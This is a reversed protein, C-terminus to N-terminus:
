SCGKRNMAYRAIADRPKIEYIRERKGSGKQGIENVEFGIKEAFYDVTKGAKPFSKKNYNGFEGALELHYKKLVACAAQFDKSTIGGNENATSLPKLFAKFIKQRSVLSKTKNRTQFNAVDLTKLIATDAELLEFNELHSLDGDIFNEVDSITLADPSLGTMNVANFRIMSDTQQQTTNHIKKLAKYEADDVIPAAHIDAVTENRVATALGIIKVNTDAIKEFHRGEIEALLLFNNEFDDLDANLKAQIECQMLGLENLVINSIDAGIDGAFNKVKEIAGQKLTELDTVRNYNLQKGFAVYIDKACRNRALMQMSENTALVNSCMLYTFEFEPVVISVGSGLVSTYIIADYKQAEVNMDALFAAQKADGKNGGHILLLREEDIGKEILYRYTKKADKESTCGAMGRKGNELDELLQQKAGDLTALLYHNAIHPKTTTELLNFQLHPCHRQFFAVTFDNLDADALHISPAVSLIGILCELLPQRNDITPSSIVTELVQRAEDFFLPKGEIAIAFKQLSNICVAIKDAYRDGEQYHDLGLRNCADDILAVRHTLYACANMKAIRLAMLETKGAGKGRNDLWAAGDFNHYNMIQGNSLDDVDHRWIKSYDIPRYDKRLNERRKAVAKTILNKAAQKVDIGRKSTAEVVANVCADVNRQPALAAYAFALQMWLGGTKKTVTNIPAVEILSKLYNARKPQVILRKFNLTDNFDCKEDNNQPVYISEVSIKKAIQLATYIGTNGSAKGADNDAALRINTCGGQHHAMVVPSFNPADMCIVVPLKDANSLTKKGDGDALYISVATAFGECYWAGFRVTNANGIVAFSGTKAGDQKIIYDKNDDRNPLNRDYIKQYGTIENEYNRFAYIIFDGKKDSGRRLDIPLDAILAAKEGFKKVLYPHNGIEKPLTAFLATTANFCKSRWEDAHDIKAKAIKAIPKQLNKYTPLFEVDNRSETWGNFTETRGGHKNTYFTINPYERGDPATWTRASAFCKGRYDKSKAIRNHRVKRGDFTLSHNIEDWNMGCSDALDTLTHRHSNLIQHIM